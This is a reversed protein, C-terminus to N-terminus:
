IHWVHPCNHRMHPGSKCSLLCHLETRHRISYAFSPRLCNTANPNRYLKRRLLLIRIQSGFLRLRLCSELISISAWDFLKLKSSHELLYRGAGVTLAATQLTDPNLLAQVMQAAYFGQCNSILGSQTPSPVAVRTDMTPLSSPTWASLNQVSASPTTV